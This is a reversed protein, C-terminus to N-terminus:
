KLLERGANWLEPHGQQKLYYWWEVGWLSIEKLGTSQAYRVHATLHRPTFLDAAEDPTYTRYDKTLWPEVQLESIVVKDVLFAVSLAQLTYWRAPIPFTFSFGIPTAVRRYMSTGIIDAEQAVTAWFQQEGSVTIQIPHHPDLARVLAVERRYLDYNVARCEGFPFLVENEVQWRELAPHTRYHTVIKDIYELLARNYDEESLQLAWAPVHCEPWRPVKGGIALVVGVNRRAAENMVRDIEEFQLTQASPQVDDWHVPLRLQRLQLDDLVAVLVEDSNLGLFRAYSPSFTAGYVPHASVREFQVFLVLSLGAFGMGAILLFARFAGSM